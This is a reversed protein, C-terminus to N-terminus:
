FKFYYFLKILLSAEMNSLVFINLKDEILHLYYKSLLTIKVNLGFYDIKSLFYKCYYLSSFLCLIGEFRYYNILNCSIKYILFCFM